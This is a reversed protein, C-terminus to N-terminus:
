GSVQRAQLLLDYAMADKHKDYLEGPNMVACHVLLTAFLKRLQHGPKFSAAEALCKDWETDDALLGRAIAAQQFTDYVVPTGDILVTKLDKYGKAGAVHNLLLRM